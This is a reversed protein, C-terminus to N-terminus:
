KEVQFAKDKLDDYLILVKQSASGLNPGIINLRELEIIINEAQTYSIQLKRQLLSTSAESAAVVIKIADYTRSDKLRSKYRDALQTLVPDALPNTSAVTPQVSMNVANTKELTQIHQKHKNHGLIIMRKLFMILLSIWIPITVLLGSGIVQYFSESNWGHRKVYIILAFVMFCLFAVYFTVCINWAKGHYKENNYFKNGAPSIQELLMVDNAAALKKAASTFTSNTVVMADTCGYIAKGSVAEQVAAIGVPTSYLKCQVAYKCKGKHAIVDVGYDGSGKTVSVNKYGHEFLYNAVAREYELGQM